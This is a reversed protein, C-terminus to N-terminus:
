GAPEFLSVMHGDPNRLAAIKGEPTFRIAGDLQAGLPLLTEVTAQLNEVKVNLM